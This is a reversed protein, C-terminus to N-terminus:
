YGVYKSITKNYYGGNTLGKLNFMPNLTYDVETKVMTYTKDLSFNNDYKKVGEMQILNQVRELYTTQDISLVMLLMLNENYDSEFDGQMKALGEHDKMTNKILDVVASSVNSCSLLEQTLCNAGTFSLWISEKGMYVKRGNVLLITDIMPEVIVGVLKVVWSMPGAAAAIINLEKNKLVPAINLLMRFMYLEIFTGAQNQIENNSGILLYEGEAGKFLTDSGSANNSINQFESFAGTLTRTYTGGAMSFVKSYSYGYLTKGGDISVRNPLNYVGYGYLLMNNYIENLGSAAMTGINVFAEVIWTIAATFFAVVETLVESLAMVIAIAGKGEKVYSIFNNSTDVVRTMANLIIAATISKKVNSNYLVGNSVISNLSSDYLGSINMIQGVLNVLNEVASTNVNNSNSDLKISINSLSSNIEVRIAMPRYLNYIEPIKDEATISSDIEDKADFSGLDKSLQQLKAVDSNVADKLNPTVSANIETMAEDIIAIMWEGTSTTCQAEVDGQEYNEWNKHLSDSTSQLKSILGTLADRMSQEQEALKDTKEKYSKAADEAEKIANKVDETDYIDDHNAGEELNEEATKIKEALTLVKKKFGSESNNYAEDYEKWASNYSNATVITDKLKQVTEVVSNTLKIEDNVQSIQKDIDDLGLKKKLKGLQADIDFGDSILQTTVSLEASELLQQKLVETDALSYTGKLRSNKVTVSNGMAKVNTDLYGKFNDNLNTQQSTAMLAFRDDLYSDYEAISSFASSDVVENMMEMASQYRSGEEFVMALSTIPMMILVLFISITGKWGNLYKNFWYIAKDTFSKKKM